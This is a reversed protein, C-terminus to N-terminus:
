KIFVLSILLTLELMALGLIYTFFEPKVYISFIITGLSIVALKIFECFYLIVVEKIPQYNITSVIFLFRSMFAINAIFMLSAGLFFSVLSYRKEVIILSLANLAIYSIIYSTLLNNGRRRSIQDILIVTKEM